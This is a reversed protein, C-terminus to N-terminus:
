GAGEQTEALTNRGPIMPKIRSGHETFRLGRLKEMGVGRCLMAANFL